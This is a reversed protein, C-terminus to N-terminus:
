SRKTVTTSEIRASTKSTKPVQTSQRPETMRAHSATPLALLKVPM